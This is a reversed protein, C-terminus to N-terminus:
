VIVGHGTRDPMMDRTLRETLNLGYLAWARAPGVYV